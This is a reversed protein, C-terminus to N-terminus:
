FSQLVAIELGEQLGTGTPPMKVNHKQIIQNLSNKGDFRTFDYLKFVNELSQNTLKRRAM